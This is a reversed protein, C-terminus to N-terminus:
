IAVLINPIPNQLTLFFLLMLMRQKLTEFRCIFVTNFYKDVVGVKKYMLVVSHNIIAFEDKLDEMSPLLWSDPLGLIYHFDKFIGGIWLLKCNIEYQM